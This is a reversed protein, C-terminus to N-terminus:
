NVIYPNNVTGATANPDNLSYKTSPLLAIVPIMNGGEVAVNGDVITGNSNVIFMVSVSYTNNYYYPSLLFYWNNMYLYFKKNETNYKGGAFAVEDVTLLGIKYEKQSSINKLKGNGNTTDSATFKSIKNDSGANPCVLSPLANSANANPYIRSDGAFRSQSAIGYGPGSILKKDNCWIVDALKNEENEKFALDYWEKLRTLMLSDYTNAQANLYKENDNAGSPNPEGYMFGVGSASNFVEPANNFKGKGAANYVSCDTGNNNQLVIKIADVYNSSKGNADFHGYFTDILADLEILKFFFEEALFM